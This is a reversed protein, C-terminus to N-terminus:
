VVIGSLFGQDRHRLMSWQTGQTTGKIVDGMGWLLHGKKDWPETELVLREQKSQELSMNM